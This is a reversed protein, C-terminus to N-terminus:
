ASELMRPCPLPHSHTLSKGHRVQAFQQHKQTHGDHNDSQHENQEAASVKRDPPKRPVNNITTLVRNEIKRQRSRNHDANHKRNQHVENPLQALLERERNATRPESNEARRYVGEM